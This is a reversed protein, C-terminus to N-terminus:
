IKTFINEKDEIQKPVSHSNMWTTVYNPCGEKHKENLIKQIKVCIPVTLLLSFVTALLAMLFIFIGMIVIVYFSLGFFKSEVNIRNMTRAGEM